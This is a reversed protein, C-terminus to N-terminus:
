YGEVWGAPTWNVSTYEQRTCGSEATWSKLLLHSMGRCGCTQTQARQSDLGSCLRPPHLSFLLCDSLDLSGMVM